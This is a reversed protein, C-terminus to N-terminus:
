SMTRCQIATCDMVGVSCILNGGKFAPGPVCPLCKDQRVLGPGVDRLDSAHKVPGSENWDM